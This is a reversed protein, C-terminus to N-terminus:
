WQYFFYFTLTFSHKENVITYWIMYNCIKNICLDLVYLLFSFSRSYKCNSFIHLQCWNSIHNLRLDHWVSCFILLKSVIKETELGNCIWNIFLIKEMGLINAALKNAISTTIGMEYKLFLNVVSDLNQFLNSEM